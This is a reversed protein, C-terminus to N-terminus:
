VHPSLHGAPAAGFWSAGGSPTLELLALSHSHRGLGPGASAVCCWWWSRTMHRSSDRWLGQNDLIETGSEEDDLYGLRPLCGWTRRPAVCSSLGPALGVRGTGADVLTPRSVATVTPLSLLNPLFFMTFTPFVFSVDSSPSFSPARINHFTRTSTCYGSRPRHRVFVPLLRRTGRGRGLIPHRPPPPMLPSLFSAPHRVLHRCSLRPGDNDHPLISPWIPRTHRNARPVVWKITGLGARCSRQAMSPGYGRGTTSAQCLV